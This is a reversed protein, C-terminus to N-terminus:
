AVAHIIAAVARVLIVHGHARGPNLRAIGHGLVGARVLLAHISLLEAVETVVAAVGGVLKATTRGLM